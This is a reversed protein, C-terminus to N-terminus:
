PCKKNQFVFTNFVVFKILLLMATSTSLAWLYHWGWNKNLFSMIMGDVTLFSISVCSFKLMRWLIRDHVLFVFHLNMFFYCFFSVVLGIRYAFVADFGLTETLLSTLVARLFWIAGGGALFRLLKKFLPVWEDKNM